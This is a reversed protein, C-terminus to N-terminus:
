PARCPQRGMYMQQRAKFRSAVAQQGAATALEIARQLVQAAREFEGVEAYAAALTDLYSPNRMETKQCVRLALGLAESGNRVEDRPCTALLWALSNAMAIHDPMNKIARRLVNVTEAYRPPDWNLLVGSLNEYPPPYLPNCEIGKRFEELADSLMRNRQDLTSQMQCKQLLALGLVNHAVAYEPGEKVARRAEELADDYRKLNLLAVALNARSDVHSPNIKLVEQYCKVAEELKGRRSLANGLDQWAILFDPRQLVAARYAQLAMDTGHRMRELANAMNYNAVASAPDEQVARMWVTVDNKWWRCQRYTLPALIAAIAIMMGAPLVLLREGRGEANSRRWWALLGAGVLLAVCLSALYSYRDAVMQAGAQLLGLAPLLLAVYCAWASALWPRESRFTVAAVTLGGVLAVCLALRMWITALDRPLEYLPSLHFPLVTRYLYFALGYVVVLVRGVFGQRDLSMMTGAEAQHGALAILGAVLALLLFPIKEFVVREAISSRRDGAKLAMRRLPYIDLIIMVIPLSDPTAKSLLALAYLILTTAYSGKRGKAGAPLLSYHLYSLITLVRFLGSLLDRRESAWAVSEVRLPHLAFFAMAAAAAWSLGPDASIWLAVPKSTRGTSRGTRIGSWALLRRAVMYFVMASGIHLLLNTLHVGWAHQLGWIKHDIALSLWSLPQYAGTYTTTFMWRLHTGSLSRIHRNEVLSVADDMLYENSLLPLFALFAAVGVALPLIWRLKEASPSRREVPVPSSNTTESM